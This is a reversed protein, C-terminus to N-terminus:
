WPETAGFADPPFRTTSNRALEAPIAILTRADRAGGAVETELKAHRAAVVDFGRSALRRAHRKRRSLKM